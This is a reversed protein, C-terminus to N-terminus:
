RGVTGYPSSTHEARFEVISSQRLLREIESTKLIWTMEFGSTLDGIMVRPDVEKKWTLSLLTYM